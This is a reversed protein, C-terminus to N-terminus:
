HVNDKPIEEPKQVKLKLTVLGKEFDWKGFDFKTIDEDESLIKTAYLFAAVQDQVNSISVQKTITRTTM